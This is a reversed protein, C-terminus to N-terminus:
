EGKFNATRKEIFAAAGERFDATNTTEGFAQVERAFGDQKEDFYANVTEIIKAIAIPGKTAIKEILEKAKTVEEGPPVVYNVLGLRLAEDAKIIDATMLLEMAKTKGIYQVLRQTGGYGPIIGLNVEPQGFSAREGAIRLHCAMALECGGGLAFGNVAAVVPKDFREILFFIDQGRQAMEQGGVADLALFEKIDAGAVFSKEGAGTIIIGKVGPRNPADEGFFQRLEQMTRTNLANLAQPRNITILLIGNNEEILLNEYTM